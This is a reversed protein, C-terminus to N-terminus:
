TRVWKEQEEKVEVKFEKLVRCLDDNNQLSSPLVGGREKPKHTEVMTYINKKEFIPSLAGKDM